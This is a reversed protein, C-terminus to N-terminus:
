TALGKKFRHYLHAAKARAIRRLTELQCLQKFPVPLRAGSILIDTVSTRERWLHNIMPHDADACSDIWDISQREVACNTLELILLVGPSFRVFSEDHAIKLLWAQSGRRIGCAMSVAVGDLSLKWFLLNGDRAEAAFGRRVVKELEEVKALATGTRGKWGAAELTLFADCWADVDGDAGFAEFTLSGQEALRNKLRRYEKRKKNSLAHEFYNGNDVRARFAAREHLDFQSCLRGSRILHRQLADYFLGEAPIKEFLFTARGNHSDDLWEFFATFARDAHDAHVLPLGMFTFKHRWMSFVSVPVGWRARSRSCVFAGILVNARSGDPAVNWVLVAQPRGQHSTFGNAAASILPVDFVPSAQLAEQGLRTWDAQHRALATRVDLVEVTVGSSRSSQTNDFVPAAPSAHTPSLTIGSIM